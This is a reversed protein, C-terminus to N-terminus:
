FDFHSCKRTNSSAECVWGYKSLFDLIFKAFNPQLRGGIELYQNFILKKSNGEHIILLNSFCVDEDRYLFIKPFVSDWFVVFGIVILLGASKRRVWSKEATGSTNLMIYLVCTDRSGLTKRNVISLCQLEFVFLIENTIEGVSYCYCANNVRQSVENSFGSM